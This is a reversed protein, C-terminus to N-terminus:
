LLARLEKALTGWEHHYVEFMQPMGGWGVYLALQEQQDRTAPLGSAEIERLVKIAAINDRAKEKIGREPRFM